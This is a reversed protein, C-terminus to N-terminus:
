LVHTRTYLWQTTLQLRLPFMMEFCNSYHELLIGGDSIDGVQRRLYFTLKFYLVDTFITNAEVVKFARSAGEEFFVDLPGLHGMRSCWRHSMELLCSSVAAKARTWKWHHPPLSLPQMPKRLVALLNVPIIVTETFSLQCSYPYLSLPLLQSSCFLPCIHPLYPCLRCRPTLFLYSISVAWSCCHVIM